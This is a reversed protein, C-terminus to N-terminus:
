VETKFNPQVGQGAICHTYAIIPSDIPHYSGSRAVSPLGNAMGLDAPSLASTAFTRGGGSSQLYHIESSPPEWHSDASVAIRNAIILVIHLSNKTDFIM